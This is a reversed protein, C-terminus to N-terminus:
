MASCSRKTTLTQPTPYLSSSHTPEARAEAIQRDREHRDRSSSSSRCPRVLSPTNANRFGAGGRFSRRLSQRESACWGRSCPQRERPGGDLSRRALSPRSSTHQPRDAVAVLRLGGSRTTSSPEESASSDTLAHETRGSSGSRPPLMSDSSRSGTETLRGTQSMTATERGTLPSDDDRAGM